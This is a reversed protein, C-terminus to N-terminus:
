AIQSKQYVPFIEGSRSRHVKLTTVESHVVVLCRHVLTGKVRAFLTRNLSCSKPVIGLRLGKSADVYLEDKKVVM